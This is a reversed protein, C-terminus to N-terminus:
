VGRFHVRGCRRARVRCVAVKLKLDKVVRTWYANAHVIKSLTRGSVLRVGLKTQSQVHLVLMGSFKLREGTRALMCQPPHSVPM